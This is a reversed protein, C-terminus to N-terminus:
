HRRDILDELQGQTRQPQSAQRERKGQMRVLKFPAWPTVSGMRYIMGPVLVRAWGGMETTGVPIPRPLLTRFAYTWEARPSASM